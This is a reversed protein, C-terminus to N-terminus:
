EARENLIQRRVAQRSPKRSFKFQERFVVSGQFAGHVVYHRIQFCQAIAARALRRLLSTFRLIPVDPDYVGDGFHDPVFVFKFLATFSPFGSPWSSLSMM